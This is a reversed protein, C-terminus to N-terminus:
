DLRYAVVADDMMLPIIALREGPIYAHDASGL